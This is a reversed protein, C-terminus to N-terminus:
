EISKGFEKKMRVIWDFAPRFYSILGAPITVSFTPRPKLAIQGRKRKRENEEEEKRINKLSKDKELYLM